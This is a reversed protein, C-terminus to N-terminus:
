VIIGDESGNAFKKIKYYLRSDQYLWSGVTINVRQRDFPFKTFDMSAAVKLEGVTSWFHLGTYDVRIQTEKFDSFFKSGADERILTDPYWAEKNEGTLCWLYEVGGFDTKNWSMRPDYWWQKFEAKFTVTGDEESVHMIGMLELQMDIVLRTTNSERDFTSPPVRVDYRREVM